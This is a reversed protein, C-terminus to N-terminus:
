TPLLYANILFEKLKSKFISVSTAIRVYVPITNWLKSGFYQMSRLGYQITNKSTQFLDGRSAQRTGHLHVNQSLQFFNHFVPPTFKNISKYVFNLINFHILDKLTLIKLSHFIPLSASCYPQFSICRLVKKQLLFLHKQHTEYSLGWSIIGYNLFSSFLSNYLCMLTDHHMLYRIKFFIASTRSLKKTLENIRYKWSLNEDMLVGLFKVYKVRKVPKKGFKLILDEPIKKKPSHFIVFNTKEINLSLKNSELWAKVTKLEGNIVKILRDTSNSEFYINTDDAFLFFSLSKSTSPLDNIYILFLLPGLVSGLPVGCTINSLRSSHGNVSVFQKRNHLYSQFWQLAIGRIGYHELKQLLIRHNVTDFAKQLDIFIGCGVNGSDLTCKIKESLSVLAHETSHGTRFGFQMEFLTEHMELFSYLRKHMLKEFIKSFIPLLSIPRYNSNNGAAGKKFIPIVMAIKLNDPFTGEEFSKNIILSLHPSICPDLIKLLKIPISNPGTSKGNVLSKIINSVEDSTSPSIFFTEPNPSKLCSLPSKPNRPIKSTIENAVNVFYDNFNNAM